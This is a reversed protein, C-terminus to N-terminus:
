LFYGSLTPTDTQAQPPENPQTKIPEHFEFPNNRCNNPANENEQDSIPNKLQNGHELRSPIPEEGHPKNDRQPNNYSERDYDSCDKYYYGFVPAISDRLDLLFSILRYREQGFRLLFRLRAIKCETIAL